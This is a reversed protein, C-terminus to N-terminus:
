KIERRLFLLLTDERLIAAYFPNLKNSESLPENLLLVHRPTELLKTWDDRAISKGSVDFAQVLNVNVSRNQETPNFRNPEIYHPVMIVREVNKGDVEVIKTVKEYTVKRKEETNPKDGFKAVTLEAEAGEGLVKAIVVNIVVDGLSIVPDITPLQKVQPARGLPAFDMKLEAGKLLNFKKKQEESIIALLTANEKEILKAGAAQREEQSMGQLGSMWESRAARNADNVFKLNAVQEDGLQMTKAIVADLLAVDGDAQAILGNMRSKQTDDLKAIFEADAEANKKAMEALMAQIAAFDVGGNSGGSPGSAAAFQRSDAARKERQEVLLDTALKKQADNLKLEAQVEPLTALEYRTRPLSRGGGGGGSQAFAVDATVAVAVLGCIALSFYKSLYMMLRVKVWLTHNLKERVDAAVRAVRM